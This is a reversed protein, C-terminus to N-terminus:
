ESAEAAKHRRKQFRNLLFFVLAGAAVGIALNQTVLITALTFIMTFTKIKSAQRLAMPRVSEWDFITFSAWLMVAVLAAMPIQAVFNDFVLVLLMLFAGSFFTSIRTRAGSIRVNIMSQGIMACGGMGGFVGALINATGQALSERKKNSPTQTVEDILKATMMTEMLGVVAMSLAYPTIIKLPELTAPVQPILIHPLSHPLAGEEGVVPVNLRFVVAILFVVAIAILPGPIIKTIKPSVAMIALGIFVLLYVVWPVGTLQPIQTGLILIALANAFGAVVSNPVFRVLKAAGALAFIIQFAGALLVTAILYDFGYTKMVPAIALAVAGTAGTIMAPRGGLFAMVVAMVFSAYLGAKPDVGVIFSFAISGPIMALAIVLGALVERILIRPNKLATLVSLDPRHSDM